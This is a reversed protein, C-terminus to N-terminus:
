WLINLFYFCMDAPTYQTTWFHLNFGVGAKPGGEVRARRGGGGGGISPGRLLKYRSTLTNYLSNIERKIQCELVQFRLKCSFNILNIIQHHWYLFLKTSQQFTLCWFIENWRLTRKLSFCFLDTLIGYFSMETFCSIETDLM